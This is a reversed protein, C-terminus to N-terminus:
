IIEKLRKAYMQGIVEQNFNRSIFEKGALGIESALSLNEVLRRMHWAAHEVDPDAWFQGDEFVYQGAEVPILRFNVLCSNDPRNFDTNGSYNTVIVPKGLLMAEAPGRGFGESRHLSVFSDCSDILALVDSRSMTKNIIHIRPDDDILKMMEIWQKSKLDGNMVKIVLGVHSSRDPFAVQFARIAAIPNKREIYSLFDFVFLFLFHNEPLGFDIRRRAQFPQPVVCLPMYEVPKRTKEAFAAQIFRSPAWIENVM